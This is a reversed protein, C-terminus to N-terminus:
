TLLLGFLEGHNNDTRPDFAIFILPFYFNLSNFLFLRIILADEYNKKYRHNEADTQMEAFKKYMEGFVVIIVSYVITYINGLFDDWATPPEIVKGNEDRKGKTTVILFQYFSMAVLVSILALYTGLKLYLKELKTVEIKKIERM